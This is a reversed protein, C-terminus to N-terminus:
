VCNSYQNKENDCIPLITLKKGLFLVSFFSSTCVNSITQNLKAISSMELLQLVVAVHVSEDIVSIVKTFTDERTFLQLHTIIQCEHSLVALRCVSILMLVCASPFYFFLLVTQLSTSECEHGGFILFHM